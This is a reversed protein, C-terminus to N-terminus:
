SIKTYLTTKTLFGWGRGRSLFSASEPGAVSSLNQLKTRCGHEVMQQLRDAQRSNQRDCARLWLDQMKTQSPVCSVEVGCTRPDLRPRPQAAPRRASRRPALRDMAVPACSQGM